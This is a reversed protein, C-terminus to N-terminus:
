VTEVLVRHDGSIDESHLAWVYYTNDKMLTSPILSYVRVNYKLQTKGTIYKSFQIRYISCTVNRAAGFIM